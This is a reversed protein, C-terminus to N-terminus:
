ALTKRRRAALDIAALCGVSVGLLALADTREPVTIPPEITETVSWSGPLNYTLGGSLCSGGITPCIWSQDDRQDSNNNETLLFAMRSSDEPLPYIVPNILWSTILGNTTGIVFDSVMGSGNRYNPTTNSITIRGDTLTFSKPFISRGYGAYVGYGENPTDAPLPYDLTFWGTIGCTPPCTTNYLYTYPNGVYTYTYTNARALPSVGIIQTIFSLVVAFSSKRMCNSTGILVTDGVVERSCARTRPVPIRPPGIIQM